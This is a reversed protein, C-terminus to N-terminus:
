KLQRHLPYLHCFVFPNLLLFLETDLQILYSPLNELFPAKTSSCRSFGSMWKHAHDKLFFQEASSTSETWNPSPFFSLILFFIMWWWLRFVFVSFQHCEISCFSSLPVVSPIMHLQNPYPWVPLFLHSYQLHKCHYFIVVRYCCLVFCYWSQDRVGRCVRILVEGHNSCIRLILRCGHGGKEWQFLEKSSCLAQM